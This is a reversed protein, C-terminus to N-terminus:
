TLSMQFWISISILDFSRLITSNCVSLPIKRKRLLWCCWHPPGASQKKKQSSRRMSPSFGFFIQFWFRFGLLILRVYFCHFLLAISSLNPKFHNLINQLSTNMLISAQSNRFLHKSTNKSCGLIGKRKKTGFRGWMREKKGLQTYKDKVQKHFQCFGMYFSFKWTCVQVGQFGYDSCNLVCVVLCELIGWFVKRSM